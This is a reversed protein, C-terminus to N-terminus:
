KGQNVLSLIGNSFSQVNTDSSDRYTCHAAAAIADSFNLESNDLLLLNLIHFIEFSIFNLLLLPVWM